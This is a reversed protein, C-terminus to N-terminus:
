RHLRKYEYFSYVTTILVVSLIPVMFFSLFATDSHFFLTLLMIAAAWRFLAGGLKHTKEWVRDDSLTWPTRIGVFWNRKSHELLIGLFYFLAAISPVMFTTFNFYYGMNWALFLAFVYLFFVSMLIWFLDYYMRFGEINKRMPDLLPIFRFFLYMLAMVTPFIAVGLLKPMYGNVEGAANWHSAVPDPLNPYALVAMAIALGILLLFKFHINQMIM